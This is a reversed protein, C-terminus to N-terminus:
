RPLCYVTRVRLTEPKDLDGVIIHIKPNDDALIKLESSSGQTRVIAFIHDESNREHLVQVIALGIGRGAGTVAYSVM